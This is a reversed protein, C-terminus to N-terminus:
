IPQESTIFRLHIISRLHSKLRLDVTRNLNQKEFTTFTRYRFVHPRFFALFHFPFHFSSHNLPYRLISSWLNPARLLIIVQRLITNRHRGSRGERTRDVLLAFNRNIAVGPHLMFISSNENQLRRLCNGDIYDMVPVNILLEPNILLESILYILM